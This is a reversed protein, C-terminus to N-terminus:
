EETWEFNVIGTQTTVVAGINVALNENANNLVIAKAGPEMGFTWRLLTTGSTASSSDLLRGGRITGVAAGPTIATTVFKATSNAAADNSDHPVSTMNSTAGGTGLASRKVLTITELAATGSTSVSVEVALVRVKTTGNGPLYAMDGAVATFAGSSASYTKKRGEANIYQSGTSDLQIAVTQAATPTPVTTNYQGLVALGNTPASGAAVTGDVTAGANGVIGVKQVGTAATSVASGAVYQLDTNINGSTDVTLLVQNNNSYGPLSSKVIAPLVGVNQVNTSMSANAWSGSVTVQSVSSQFGVMVTVWPKSVPITAAGQVSLLSPDFTSGCAFSFLNVPSGAINQQGSDNAFGLVGPTITITEATTGIGIGFFVIDNPYLPTGAQSNSIPNTSAGSNTLSIGQDVNPAAGYVEYIELGVSSSADVPVSVTNAGAVASVAYSCCISLTGNSGFKAVNWTNGQTDTPVEQNTGGQAYVAVLLTGVSVNNPYALSVSAGSTQKTVAKQVIYPRTGMTQIPIGQVAGQVSWPASGQQVTWTGSQTAAVTGSVTVTGLTASDIITHLQGTTSTLLGRVNTGDYGLAITGLASSSQASGMAFQSGGGFSVIQNGSADLIQVSLPRESGRADSTIANGAGDQLRVSWNGSQTAAITGSVTVTNTVDVNASTGTLTWVTGDPKVTWPAGGQNATVTGSVPQTVASGDVKLANSATVTASNGGQNITMLWPTTNATNGPQVTWTGSQTVAATGTVIVNVKGTNDTSILRSTTGDSGMVSTAVNPIATNVGNAVTNSAGSM